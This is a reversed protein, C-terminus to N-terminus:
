QQDPYVNTSLLDPVDVIIATLNDAADTELVADKLALCNEKPTGGTLNDRIGEEGIPQYLGDSCLLFRDGPHLAGYQVDLELPEDGGIARNITRNGDAEEDEAHDRTLQDLFGDRLRYIRSDGAWVCAFSADSTMLAAVTSAAQHVDEFGDALQQLNNQVVNLCTTLTNVRVEIDADPSVCDIAGTVMASAVDGAQHGGLGDAVMWIRADDRQAYADENVDRVKGVDSIAASVPLSTVGFESGTSVGLPRSRWRRHQWNGDLLASFQEIGPLEPCVLLSPVVVDSGRTLWVSHPGVAEFTASALLGMLQNSLRGNEALAFHLHRNEDDAITGVASPEVPSIGSPCPRSQAVALDFEDFSVPPDDLVGLLISEIELFWDDSDTLLAFTPSESDCQAVVSLPFYRGVKDVSPMVVGVYANDDLVGSSLAFQWIPSNLYTDLWSGGLNAQSVALCRQLWSDWGTVFSHPLRREVFDGRTPLKGFFGPGNNGPDESTARANMTDAANQNIGLTSESM